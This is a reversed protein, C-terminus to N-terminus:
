YIRQMRAGSAVFGNFSAAGRCNALATKNTKGRTPILECDDSQSHM